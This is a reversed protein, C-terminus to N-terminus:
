GNAMWTEINPWKDKIRNEFFVPHNDKVYYLINKLIPKRKVAAIVKDFTGLKKWEILQDLILQKGHANNTKLIREIIEEYGVDDWKSIAEAMTSSNNIIKDLEEVINISNSSYSVQRLNRIQSVPLFGSKTRITPRWENM